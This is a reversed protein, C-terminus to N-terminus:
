RGSEAVLDLVAAPWEPHLFEFGAHLLRGPVARRSKLVLEPDTRLLIAGLRIMWATAPLGVPMGLAARMAAMFERQPLPHPAALNVPGALDDREILFQVARAFDKYHIWSMYQGGGAIPGGLGFRVLRRLVDFVSGRDPSMVMAARLAVQRTKPTAVDSQAREWAKAIEISYRWYEPVGPEDGGLLGTAEDNPADFRHAYITATSMQLWLRPPKAAAAIAMGVARTSDVRSALMQTLNDKTYRCDVSRGALNIVVDAGDVVGAWDGLTRGDWRVTDGGSKRRSLFVIEHGLVRLERALAAGVHGNGGPVIIKM